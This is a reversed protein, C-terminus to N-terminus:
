LEELLTRAITRVGLGTAGGAFLKNDEAFFSGALDFHLWGKGDHPAFRSLFGAANSAGGAGGGPLTRSNCTDAYLSPFKDRHFKELPLSWHRENERSAYQLARAQLAHDLAFVANYDGGLAIKAAGTLTAADIVLGAGTEGAMILGDALVVRGEADTNAIEVSVGNKYNLIDGNKYAHGSILNEACCLILVIRKRLGAQIASALAGAVTAAGGMDSKMLFMHETKKLSYGGSDYILGKGVLAAAVPDGQCEEPCYELRLIAPPRDSGRGVGDVGVWGQEALEEGSIIEYSIADAAFQLLFRVTDEALMVPSQQEPTTHIMSRVWNHIQLRRDLEKVEDSSEAAWYIEGCQRAKLYGLAFSWQAEVDWEPGAMTVELVGQASIKRAAQQITDLRNEVSTLHINFGDARNSLIANAGWISAATESTITVKM